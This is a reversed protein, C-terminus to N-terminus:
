VRMQSSGIIRIGNDVYSSSKFPFGQLLDALEGLPASPVDPDFQFAGSKYYEYQARRAELEAELEATLASFNDLIRVIEDQVEIPPVPIRIKEMNKGSVRRVKTGSIFRRKQDQFDQSQFFYAVYKPSLSHRFIYADGSVAVEEDGLWTVAKCVDEDNESTTAIVLDGTRARRLKAAFEPEVFSKTETAATGYHTFVQGYHIAGVGEDRLDKKQLGSGRIFEGVEGLTKFPVGEPCLDRILDDIRSM